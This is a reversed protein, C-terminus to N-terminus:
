KVPPARKTWPPAISWSIQTGTIVTRRSLLLYEEIPKGKRVDKYLHAEWGPVVQEGNYVKRALAANQRHVERLELKAVKQLAIRVQAATEPEMGPMQVIVTDEGSTAILMDSTGMANLRKEITEVVNELDKKTVPILNGNTPDKKPQVKLTFSSGGVIDIGGKLTKDPPILALVCLTCLGLVLISGINRKRRESETAFYWIFLILLSLGSLFLVLPDSVVQLALTAPM